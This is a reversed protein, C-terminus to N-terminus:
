LGANNRLILNAGRPSHILNWVYRGGTEDRIEYYIVQRLLDAYRQRFVDRTFCRLRLSSFHVTINRNILSQVLSFFTRRMECQEQNIKLSIHLDALSEFRQLGNVIEFFNLDIELGSLHLECVNNFSNFWSKVATNQPRHIRLITLSSAKTNLGANIPPNTMWIESIM